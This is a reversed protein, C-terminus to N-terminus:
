SLPQSIRWIRGGAASMLVDLKGDHAQFQICCRGDTGDLMLAGQLQATLEPVKESSGGADSLVRSALASVLHQSARLSSCDLAFFFERPLM